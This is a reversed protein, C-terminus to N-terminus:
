GANGSGGRELAVFCPAAWREPCTEPKCECITGSVPDVIRANHLQSEKFWLICEAGRVNEREEGDIWTAGPESYWLALFGGKDQSDVEQVPPGLLARVAELSMGARVNLFSESRFTPSVQPLVEERVCGLVLVGLVGIAFLVRENM